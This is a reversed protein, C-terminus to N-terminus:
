CHVFSELVLGFLLERGSSCFCSVPLQHIKDPLPLGARIELDNKQSEWVQLLFLFPFM